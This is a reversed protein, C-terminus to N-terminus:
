RRSESRRCRCCWYAFQRRRRAPHGTRRDHHVHRVGCSRARLGHRACQDHQEYRNNTVVCGDPATVTLPPGSTVWGAFLQGEQLDAPGKNLIEINWRADEGVTVANTASAIGLVLDSRNDRLILLRFSLTATAGARDTVQVVITYPEDRADEGTPTGSLQGTDADLQLSGGAPLGTSSFRLVDGEDPDDFNAALSLSYAIGEIAEQDPVQTVVVPPANFRLIRLDFELSASAGQRDTATVKIRYPRDRIDAAVPTGALIALDEDFQLSGSGPLGNISFRLEDDEDPDAFNGALALRYEIGETAVQEPVDSVVFPPSNPVDEITITVTAERSFSTGDFARYKFEDSDPKSGDHRYLFTGDSRLVLTGHKVDRSLTATLRDRELDFDNDLVSKAGTTLEEVTGGRPVVATDPVV